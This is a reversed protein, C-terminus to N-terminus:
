IIEFKAKYRIWYLYKLDKPNEGPMLPVSNRGIQIGYDDIQIGMNRLKKMANEFQSKRYTNYLYQTM